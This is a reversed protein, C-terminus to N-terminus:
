KMMLPVPADEDRHLVKSGVTDGNLDVLAVGLSRLDGLDEGLLIPSALGQGDLLSSIAHQHDLDAGSTGRRNWDNEQHPRKPDLRVLLDELGDLTGLLRELVDDGVDVLDLFTGRLLVWTPVLWPGLSVLVFGPVVFHLIEVLCMCPELLLERGSLLLFVTLQADGLHEVTFQKGMKTIIFRVPLLLGDEEPADNSLNEFHGDRISLRIVLIVIGVLTNSQRTIEDLIEETDRHVLESTVQLVLELSVVVALPFQLDGGAKARVDQGRLDHVREGGAVPDTTSRTDTLQQVSGGVERREGVKTAHGTREYSALGM